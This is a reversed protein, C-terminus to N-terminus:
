TFDYNISTERLHGGEKAERSKEKESVNSLLYNSSKQSFRMVGFIPDKGCGGDWKEKEWADEEERYNDQPVLSRSVSAGM